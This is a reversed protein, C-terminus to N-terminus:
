SVSKPVTQASHLAKPASSPQKQPAGSQPKAATAEGAFGPEGEYATNGVILSNLFVEAGIAALQSRTKVRGVLKHPDPGESVQRQVFFAETLKFARGLEPLNMINGEIAIRGEETWVQVRRQSVFIRPM